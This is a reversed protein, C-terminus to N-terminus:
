SLFRGTLKRVNPAVGWFVNEAGVLEKDLRKQTQSRLIEITGTLVVIMKYGADIAKAITGAFNATKGSQVYGMVLGKSQYAADRAPDALRSVVATTSKELGDLADDDFGKGKLVSKYQDWYFTSAGLKPYWPDWDETQIVTLVSEDVLPFAEQLREVAVDSFGLARFVEERRASTDATAVSEFSRIDLNPASTWKGLKIHFTIRVPANITDGVIFDVVSAEEVSPEDDVDLHANVLKLLNRPKSDDMSNVVARVADLIHKTM